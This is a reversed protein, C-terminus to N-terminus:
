VPGNRLLFFIFSVVSSDATRKQILGAREENTRM